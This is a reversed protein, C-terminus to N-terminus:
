NEKNKSEIFEIIERLEDVTIKEEEALASVVSKYSNGFYNRILTALSNDRFHSKEVAAYFRHSNGLVEHGVYGKGELIRVTTAVTNFHPKPEPYEEVMERVFMPGRDWLMNMIIAEKETLEQKKRGAKM